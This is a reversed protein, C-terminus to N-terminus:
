KKLFSDGLGKPLKSGSWGTLCWVQARVYDRLVQAQPEVGMGGPPVPDFDWAIGRSGLVIRAIAAARPIHEHSTVVLVRRIKNKRFEGVLTTFNTLTDTATGDYHINEAPAGARKLIRVLGPDGSSYWVPLSLALPLAATHHVRDVGGGLILIAQPEPVRFRAWGSRLVCFLHLFAPFLLVLSFSILAIRVKRKKWFRRTM